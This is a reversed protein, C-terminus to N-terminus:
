LKAEKAAPSADSKVELKAPAAGEPKGEPKVPNAKLWSRARGRTLATELDNVNRRGLEEMLGRGHGVDIQEGPKGGSLALASSRRLHALSFDALLGDLTAERREPALWYERHPINLKTGSPGAISTPIFALLLPVGVIRGAAEVTRTFFIDQESTFQIRQFSCDLCRAITQALTTKGVGPVDEILLHGGALLTVIALHVAESKGRIVSEINQQLESIRQATGTIM